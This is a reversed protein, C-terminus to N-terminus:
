PCKGSLSGFEELFKECAEEPSWPVIRLSIPAPLPIWPRVQVDDMLDRRETALMELDATRIRNAYQENEWVPHLGYRTRVINEFRKELTKYGQMEPLWKLPAAVDGVYAEHADHMLAAFQVPTSWLDRRVVEKVLVSHQAVSYFPVHGTFRCIRSLAYAIDRIEIQDLQPDVLDVALHGRTQLWTM